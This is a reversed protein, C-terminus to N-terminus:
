LVAMRPIRELKLLGLEREYKSPTDQGGDLRMSVGFPSEWLLQATKLSVVQEYADGYEAASIRQRALAMTSVILETGASEFERRERMFTAAPSAM